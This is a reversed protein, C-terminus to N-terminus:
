IYANSRFCSKLKFCFSMLLESDVNTNKEETDEVPQINNFYTLIESLLSAIDKFHFRLAGTISQKENPKKEVQTRSALPLFIFAVNVSCNKMSWIQTLDTTVALMHLSLFGWEKQVCHLAEETRKIQASYIFDWLVSTHNM